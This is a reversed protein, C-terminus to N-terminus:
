GRDPARRALHTARDGQRRGRAARAGDPDPRARLGSDAGRARRRLRDGAWRADVGAGPGARHQAPRRGAEAGVRDRRGRDLARGRRDRVACFGPPRGAPVLRDLRRAGGRSTRRAGEQRERDRRDHVRQAREQASRAHLPVRAAGRARRAQGGARRARQDPDPGASRSPDDARRGALCEPDHAARAARHPHGRCRAPANSLLRRGLTSPRGLRPGLANAVRRMRHLEPLPLSDHRLRRYLLFRPFDLSAWGCGGANAAAATLAAPASRRIPRRSFPVRSAHFERLAHGM